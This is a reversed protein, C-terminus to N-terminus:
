NAAVPGNTAPPLPVVKMGDVIKQIGSAVFESDAGLGKRIEAQGPLRVGIEVPTL